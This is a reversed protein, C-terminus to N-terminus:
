VDHISRGPRLRRPNFQPRTFWWWNLAVNLPCTMVFHLLHTPSSVCVFVGDRDGDSLGALALGAIVSLDGIGRLRNTFSTFVSLGGLPLDQREAVFSARAAIAEMPLQGMQAMGARHDGGRKNWALSPVPHLGIASVAFGQGAQM